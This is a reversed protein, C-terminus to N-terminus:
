STTTSPELRFEYDPEIAFVRCNRQYVRLLLEEYEEDPNELKNYNQRGKEKLLEHVEPETLNWRIIAEVIRHYENGTPLAEYAKGVDLRGSEDSLREREEPIYKLNDFKKRTETEPRTLAMYVARAQITMITERVNDELM